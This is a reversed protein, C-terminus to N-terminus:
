RVRRAALPARQEGEGVTKIRRGGHWPGGGGPGGKWSGSPPGDGDRGQDQDQLGGPMSVRGEEFGGFSSRKLCQKKHTGLVAM